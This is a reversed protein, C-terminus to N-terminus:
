FLVTTHVVSGLVVEVSLLKSYPSSSEMNIPEPKGIYLWGKCLKVIQAIMKLVITYRLDRNCFKLLHQSPVFEKM